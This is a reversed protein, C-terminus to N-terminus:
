KRFFAICSPIPYIILHRIQGFMRLALQVRAFQHRQSDQM